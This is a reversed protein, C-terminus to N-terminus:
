TGEDTVQDRLWAVFAAAINTAAADAPVRRQPQGAVELEPEREPSNM